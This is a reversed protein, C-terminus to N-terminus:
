PINPATNPPSLYWKFKYENINPKAPLEKYNTQLQQHVNNKPRFRHFDDQQGFITRLLHWLPLHKLSAQNLVLSVDNIRCLNAM